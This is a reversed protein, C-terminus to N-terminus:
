SYIFLEGACDIIQTTYEDKLKLSGDTFTLPIVDELFSSYAPLIEAIIQSNDIYTSTTTKDSQHGLIEALRKPNLGGQRMVTSYSHRLDHWHFDDPIGLKNKIYQFPVKYDGRGHPMGNSQHWIFKGDYFNETAVEYDDYRKRALVLEAFVFDPIPVKREGARSKTHLEQKYLMGDEIDNDDVPRGLQKHIVIEQHQYNVDLFTLAILESVRCGCSCALLAALYFDPTETKAIYLFACLKEATLANRNNFFNVSQSSGAAKLNQQEKNVLARKTKIASIAFNHQILNQSKAYRFSSGIVSYGLRLLSPTPFSSLIELLTDRHVKTLKKEGIQPIIYSYIVNRYSMFTNYSIKKEDVMYYYLWFDLFEKVSVNFFVFEHNYLQTIISEKSIKAAAKTSFGGIEKSVTSGDAFTVSFRVAYKGHTITIKERFKWEIIEGKFFVSNVEPKEFHKRNM